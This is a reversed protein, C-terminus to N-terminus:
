VVSKRDRPDLGLGPGGGPHARRVESGSDALTPRAPRDPDSGETCFALADRYGPLAATFAEAVSVPLDVWGGALALSHRTLRVRVRQGGGPLGVPGSGS